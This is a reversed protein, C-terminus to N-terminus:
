RHCTARAPVGQEEERTTRPDTDDVRASDGPPLGPPERLDLGVSVGQGVWPALAAAVMRGMTAPNGTPPEEREFRRDGRCTPGADRLHTEKARDTGSTSSRRGLVNPHQGVNWDDLGDPVGRCPM